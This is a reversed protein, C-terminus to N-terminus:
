KIRELIALADYNSLVGPFSKMVKKNEDILITQPTVNIKYNIMFEDEITSYTRFNLKNESFFNQTHKLSDISIGIINLNYFSLTDTLNIWNATNIKCPSCFVSFVYMITKKKEPENLFFQIKNGLM